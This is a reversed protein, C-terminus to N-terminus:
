SDNSDKRKTEPTIQRIDNIKLQREERFFSTKRPINTSMPTKKESNHFEHIQSIISDSKQDKIRKKSSKSQSYRDPIRM